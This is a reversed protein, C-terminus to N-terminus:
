EYSKGSDKPSQELCYLPLSNVNKKIISAKQHDIGKIPFYM